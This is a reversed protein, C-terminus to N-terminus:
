YLVVFGGSRRLPTATKIPEVLLIREPDVINVAFLRSLKLFDVGFERTLPFNSSFFAVSPAVGDPNQRGEIIIEGDDGSHVRLVVPLCNLPQQLTASLEDIQQLASESLRWNLLNAYGISVRKRVRLEALELTKKIELLPTGDAGELALTLLTHVGDELSQARVQLQFAAHEIAGGPPIIVPHRRSLTQHLTDVYDRLTERKGIDLGREPLYSRVEVNNAFISPTCSASSAKQREVEVIMRLQGEILEEKLVKFGVLRATSTVITTESFRGNVSASASRVSLDGALGINVFLQKLLQTRVTDLDQNDLPLEVTHLEACALSSHALLLLVLALSRFSQFM